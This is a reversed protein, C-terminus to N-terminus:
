AYPVEFRHSLGIFLLDPIPILSSPSGALFVTLELFFPEGDIAEDCREIGQLCFDICGALREITKCAGDVLQDLRMVQVDLFVIRRAGCVSFFEVFPLEDPIGGSLPDIDILELILRLQEPHEGMLEPMREAQLM